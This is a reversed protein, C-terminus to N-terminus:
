GHGFLLDALVSRASDPEGMKLVTNSKIEEILM